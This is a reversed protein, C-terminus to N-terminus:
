RFLHPVFRASDRTVLGDDERIGMGKAAGDVLWVGLVAHRGPGAEPLKTFEQYIWGEEGYPGAMSVLPAGEPRGDPGLRAISVNAGERGFLPKAVVTSGAPFRTRERYAPLLNPHGPFLEWLLPLLGKGSLLLKWAPEIVTLRGAAVAEALAAGFPERLLWEWPYLKFLAHIPQEHQDVFGLRDNFGIQDIPVFKTPRGADLAVGELYRVTGEDEQHPVICSLHLGRALEPRAALADRLAEHLGNFQDTGPFRDELWQWQVVSAEFLSTPTDANYELLKPEGSGDWALDLRGYLARDTGERREWSARLLPGWHAPIGLADWRGHAVVHAAAELCLRHLEVAADDLRDIEAATFEWAVSEDWYPVGGGSHFDFGLAELKAQWDPRPALTLRRM